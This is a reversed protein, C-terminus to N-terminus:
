MLMGMVTMTRGRIINVDGDSDHKKLTNSGLRGPGPGKAGWALVLGLFVSPDLPTLAPAEAISGEKRHM